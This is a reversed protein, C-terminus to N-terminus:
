AHAGYHRAQLPVRLSCHVGDPRLEYATQARLQYPLAREILERGYGRRAGADFAQPPVYVGSERWDVHLRPEDGGDEVQWRVALRGDPCSLAGYKVANTALEHLGLAFTQVTSSRLGIGSPGDLTIQGDDGIRDLVGLGSLEAQLLQDFTVRQGSERQSLLGQVRALAAMRDRFRDRFEQMSTSSATTRDAISRVVGILNRTRHQLEAVLVQQQEQLEKLQQVDTCTGFWEVAAGGVELQPLSRTHHWLWAGDAARRVRFEVDLMGQETAQAWGQLAGERDDPHVADLWGMRLSEGLTQGTFAQWQPSSWTWEGEDLSRWVLQPIGQVLGRLREESRALEGQVRKLDTVDHGIGGIRHVRGEGDFLPFDTDRVWRIAGDEVRRIRYEFTVQEGARVRDMCALAYERDEELVHGAWRSVDNDDLAVDVPEGYVQAYAPSLYEWHLTEADRVWLVDASADSFQRLLQESAERAAEAAKRDTLDVTVALLNGPLGNHTRFRTVSSEAWVTGGDARLYRKEIRVPDGHDHARALTDLTRELDDPHTVELVTMGVLAERPRGLLRCLEDNVRVFRGSPDVESLGVSANAFIAALRAESERLADVARRREDVDINIGIWERVAGQPDLVPMARVNTWRWGDDARCLRFEADVPTRAAVAEAWQRRAYKRDDPHIADLWGWGMWEDITQGTYARWSPSDVHVRGDPGTEWIAQAPAGVLPGVLAEREEIAHAARARDTTELGIILFGAVAGDDDRLPTWSFTFWSTEHARGALRMPEDVFLQAQGALTADLAARHEADIQSWVDYYSRGLADPHKTGLVPVYADNYISVLTPGWGVYGPQPLALMLDVATRLSQPWAERPGLPTTSWDFAAVRAAM